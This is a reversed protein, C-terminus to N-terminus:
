LVEHKTFMGFKKEDMPIEKRNLLHPFFGKKLEKLGFSKPLKSLPMPLFNLSDLFKINLGHDVRMLMLKTGNFIPSKPPIGRKLLRQYIFYGDYGRANHAIVTSNKHEVQLLYDLFQDVVDGSRDSFIKQRYGCSQCLDVSWEKEKKDYQRCVNCRPGCESCKSKEEM